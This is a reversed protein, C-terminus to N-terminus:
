GALELMRQQLAQQEAQHLELAMRLDEDGDAAEWVVGAADLGAEAEANISCDDSDSGASFCSLNESEARLGAETAQGAETEGPLAQQRRQCPDSRQASRGPEFAFM